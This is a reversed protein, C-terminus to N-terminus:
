LGAEAVANTRFLSGSRIYRRMVVLANPGFQEQIARESSGAMAAKRTAHRAAQRFLPHRGGDGELSASSAASELGAEKV